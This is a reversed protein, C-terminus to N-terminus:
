EIFLKKMNLTESQVFELTLGEEHFIPIYWYDHSAGIIYQKLETLKNYNFNVGMRKKKYFFRYTAFSIPESFHAYKEREPTKYWPASAFLYGREVMKICRTWPYIVFKIEIGVANFSQEIIQGSLGRNEPDKSTFPKWDDVGVEVITKATIINPLVLLSFLLFFCFRIYKM